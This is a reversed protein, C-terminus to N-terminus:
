EDECWIKAGMDKIAFNIANMVETKREPSFKVILESFVVDDLEDSITVGGMEDFLKSFEKDDFGLISIDFDLEAIETIESRLLGENWGGTEGLKNDAIVYAKKQAETLGDLVICPVEEIGLKNAAMVRGHGAVLGDQEDILVPNTFGFEKISSAIQNIQADSHTRSNNIYPILQSTKRICYEYNGKISPFKNDIAM